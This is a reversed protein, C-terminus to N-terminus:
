RGGLFDLYAKALAALNELAINHGSDALVASRVDPAVQTRQRSVQDALYAQGGVALVPCSIPIAYHPRDHETDIQRARYRELIARTGGPQEVSRVKEDIDSEALASPDWM